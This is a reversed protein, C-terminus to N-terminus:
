AGPLRSLAFALLAAGGLALVLAEGVRRRFVKVLPGPAFILPHQPDGRRLHTKAGEVEVRGLADAGGLWASTAPAM